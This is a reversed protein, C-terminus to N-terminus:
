QKSLKILTIWKSSHDSFVMAAVRSPSFQGLKHPFTAPTGNITLQAYYGVPEEVTHVGCMHQTCKTNGESVYRYRLAKFDPKIPDQCGVTPLLPNIFCLFNQHTRLRTQIFKRGVSM